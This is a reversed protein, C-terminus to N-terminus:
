DGSKLKQLYDQIYKDKEKHKYQVIFRPHELPIISEFFRKEENLSTLFQFNKGSGLCFCTKKGFGLKIQEKLNWEIFPLVAKLLAKNDYYNYNKEKGKEDKITFGLPCISHIYNELFFKQAGGYAEIMEYVFVSSPEHLTRGPYPIGCNGALRKPDTFPVGTVGAGLRGPNIGLILNRPHRDSYFKRYFAESCQLAFPNERFPNMVRIGAPLEGSFHLARNFAIIKEAFNM